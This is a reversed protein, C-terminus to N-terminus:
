SLEWCGGGEVHDRDREALVRAQFPAVVEAWGVVEQWTQVVSWGGGLVTRSNRHFHTRPLWADSGCSCASLM